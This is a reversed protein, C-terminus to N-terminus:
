TAAPEVKVGYRAGLYRVANRQTETSEGNLLRVIRGLLLLEKDSASREPAKRAKPAAVVAPPVDPGPVPTPTDPHLHVSM